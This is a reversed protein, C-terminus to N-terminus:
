ELSYPENLDFDFHQRHSTATNNEQLTVSIEIDDVPSLRHCRQHGGLAQGTSFVRDCLKCPHSKEVRAEKTELLAVTTEHQDVEIRDKKHSARHGGLAQHTPFSKKCTSCIYRKRVMSKKRRKKDHNISETLPNNNEMNNIEKEDNTQKRKRVEDLKLDKDEAEFEKENEKNQKPTLEHTSGSALLMLNDVAMSFSDEPIKSHAVPVRIKPTRKGTVHPSWTSQSADFKETTNVEDSINEKKMPSSDMSNINNKTNEPPRVGKWGRDPHLRMHGYLAKDSHFSKGCVCCTTNNKEDGSNPHIRSSGEGKSIALKEVANKENDEHSVTHDHLESHTQDM